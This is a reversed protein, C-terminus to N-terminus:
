VMKVNIQEQKVAFNILKKFILWYVCVGLCIYIILLFFEGTFFGLSPNSLYFLFQIMVQIIIMRILDNIFEIYEPKSVVITYLSEM